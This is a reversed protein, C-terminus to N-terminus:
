LDGVPGAPGLSDFFEFSTTNKITFHGVIRQRASGRPHCAFLTATREHTQDIIHIDSPNVIEIRDLLYIIREDGITFILEDGAVLENLAWFPKSYTTRHGAIVANGVEGPMASGPWHSPGRNIATLTVGEFLTQSVGIKPIELLGHRIEPTPAYANSPPAEPQPLEISSDIDEPRQVDVVLGALPDLDAQVPEATAALSVAASAIGDDLESSVHSAVVAVNAVLVAAITVALARLSWGTTRM